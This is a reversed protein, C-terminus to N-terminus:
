GDVHRSSTETEAKQAGPRQTTAAVESAEAQSGHEQTNCIHLASGASEAGGGPASTLARTLARARVEAVSQCQVTEEAETRKDEIKGFPTTHEDM